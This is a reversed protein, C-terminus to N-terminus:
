KKKYKHVLDKKGMDILQTTMIGGIAGGYYGAIPSPIDSRDIGLEKAIEYNEDIIKKEDIETKKRKKHM